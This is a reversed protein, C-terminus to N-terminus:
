DSRSCTCSLRRRGPEVHEVHDVEPGEGPDVVARRTRVREGGLELCEGFQLLLAQDPVQAQARDAGALQGLRLLDGRHHAYLVEVVDGVPRVRRHERCRGAAWAQPVNAGIYQVPFNADDREFATYLEPLQNSRFHRHAEFVITQTALCRTDCM